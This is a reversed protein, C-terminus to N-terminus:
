KPLGLVREAIVNRQIQATGAFITDARSMLYVDQFRAGGPTREDDLMADTGLVELGLHGIRQRLEGWFLRVISAEAGITEGVELRSVLKLNHLRHIRLLSYVAALEQRFYSEEAVARGRPRSLAVGVMHELENQFRAQRYLRILAREKAVADTAVRWGENIPGIHHDLPVRVNDFLIENFEARGNLQALPRLDIGPLHMPLAFVTMGGYKGASPDTRALLCCWDAAHAQSTWIKRGNIIWHSGERTATTRIAGLDSGAEPETFGQCWCDEVAAIRKLFRSKQEDTGVAQIMPGATEVGIINFPEPAAVRGLEENVILTHTLTLGQGGHEKPWHVATYGARHLKREWDKRFAASEFADEPGSYTGGWGPPLNGALWSRLRSRYADQEATFSFDL